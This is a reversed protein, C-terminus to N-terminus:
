IGLKKLVDAPIAKKNVIIAVTRIKFYDDRMFLFGGLQNSYNGWSNKIYYWKQGQKDKVSSVIHMMHDLLTGQNEFAKQRAAQFDNITDPIYALGGIFDFYPDDADGDWGITFGNRLANDTISSFDTMTVNYYADGTWNYKDELVFPKYFLHHTYSTIEMYDDPNFGLVEKLFSQPTYKKEKYIFEKPVQGLYHDLVSDVFHKQEKSLETIGRAVCDNVFHSFLTDMEAHNHNYEGRAKGPYVSEPVIGYKKLVWIADHFQGGPTFFNQGKLQLYRQIKRLMSYRAVFMESLDFNGKGMKMLESELFSNSSFSWCTSSMYQDKVSTCNSVKPAILGLQERNLKQAECFGSLFLLPILLLRPMMFIQWL